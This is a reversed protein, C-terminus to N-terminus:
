SSLARRRSQEWALRMRRGSLEGGTMSRARAYPTSPPLEMSLWLDAHQEHALTTDVDNLKQVLLRIGPDPAM